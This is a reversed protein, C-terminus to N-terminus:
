TNKKKKKKKEEEEKQCFLVFDSFPSHKGVIAGKKVHTLILYQWIERYIYETKNKYKVRKNQDYRLYIVLKEQRVLKFLPDLNKCLMQNTNYLMEKNKKSNNVSVDSEYFTFNDCEDEQYNLSTNLHVKKESITMMTTEKKNRETLCLYYLSLINWFLKKVMYIFFFNYFYTKKFIQIKNIDYTLYYIFNKHMVEDNTHKINGYSICNDSAIERDDLEFDSNTDHIEDIESHQTTNNKYYPKMRRVRRRGSGRKIHFKGRKLEDETRKNDEGVHSDKTLREMENSKYCNSNENQFINKRNMVQPTACTTTGNIPSLDGVGKLLLFDNEVTFNEGDGDVENPNNKGQKQAQENTKSKNFEKQGINMVAPMFIHISNNGKGNQMTQSINCVVTSYEQILKEVNLINENFFYNLNYLVHNMIKEVNKGVFQYNSLYKSHIYKHAYKKYVKKEKRKKDEKYKNVIDLLTIKKNDDTWKRKTDHPVNISDEEKKDSKADGPKNFTSLENLLDRQNGVRNDNRPNMGENMKKNEEDYIDILDNDEIDHFYSRYKDVLFSIYIIENLKFYTVLNFSTLYKKKRERKKQMNDIVRNLLFDYYMQKKKEHEDELHKKLEEKGKLTNLKDKTNGENHENDKEQRKVHNTPEDNTGQANKNKKNQTCKKKKSKNPNAKKKINEEILKDKDVSVHSQKDSHIDKHNPNKEGNLMEDNITEDKPVHDNKDSQKNNSTAGLPAEVQVREFNKENLDNSKLPLQNNNNDSLIETHLNSKDFIKDEYVYKMEENIRRNKDDKEGQAKLNENETKERNKKKEKEKILGEEYSRIGHHKGIYVVVPVYFCRNTKKSTLSILDDATIERYERENKKNLFFEEFMCEITEKKVARIFEECDNRTIVHEVRCM